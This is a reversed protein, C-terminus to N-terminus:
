REMRYKKMNRINPVKDEGYFIMYKNFFIVYVSKKFRTFIERTLLM